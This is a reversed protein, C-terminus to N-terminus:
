AKRQLATLENARAQLNAREAALSALTKRHEEVRDRDIRGLAAATRYARGVERLSNADLLLRWYGARGMKYLQVMRAEADPRQQEARGALEESRRTAVALKERVSAADRQTRVLEAVRIEREVELKRLEALLSREQKALAEAEKQLAALRDAARRAQAETQARDASQAFVSVGMLLVIGAVLNSSCRSAM